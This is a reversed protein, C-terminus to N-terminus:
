IQGNYTWRCTTFKSGNKLKLKKKFYTPPSYPSQAEKEWEDTWVCWNVVVPSVEGPSLYTDPHGQMSPSTCIKNDRDIKFGPYLRQRRDESLKDRIQSDTLHGAFEDSAHVDTSCSSTVTKVKDLFRM